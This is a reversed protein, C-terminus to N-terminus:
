RARRLTSAAGLAGLSLGATSAFAAGGHLVARALSAGDASSLIGACLAVVLSFLGVILMWLVWAHSTTRRAVADSM